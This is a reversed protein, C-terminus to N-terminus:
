SILERIHEAVQTLLWGPTSTAGTIGVMNFWNFWENQIEDISSLFYSRPNVAKCVQYLYAGNASNKGAVFLIVEHELAFKRLKPARGSVQRCVSKNFIFAENNLARMRSSISSAIQEYKEGDMTTQSFLTVPKNFDIKELDSESSIIIAQYETNGALGILEAHEPKGYIVIQNGHLKGEKYAKQVRDQLKTVIPCTADILHVGAKEAIAFTEPPEGHARILVKEGKMATLDAYSVVKLGQQELMEVQVRNHVIEGLSYLESGSGLTTEAVRIAHNVGFCFGSDPDISIKM